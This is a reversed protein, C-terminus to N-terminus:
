LPSPRTAWTNKHGSFSCYGLCDSWGRDGFGRSGHVERALGTLHPPIDLIEPDLVFHSLVIFGDLDYHSKIPDSDNLTYDEVECPESLKENAMFAFVLHNCKDMGDLDYAMLDIFCETDYAKGMSRHLHFM